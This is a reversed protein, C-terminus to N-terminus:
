DTGPVWGDAPAGAEVWRRVVDVLTADLRPKNFPMRKGFGPELDGELKHMLYSTTADGHTADLQTVRQWGATAADANTPTKGILNDYSAGRELLLEAQVTQSDHCGGLACSQDFIQTQIRAFTSTFFSRPDCGAPAPDCTLKLLDVDSRVRGAVPTSLAVLRISKEGKRCVGGKLPGRVPVHVATTASCRDLRTEPYEFVFGARTAIAQMEPDFSPDGNDLAHAITVAAVGNLTCRANATSNACIAIPFQCRGNVLGDADCPDGDACRVSRPTRATGVAPAPVDFVALCDNKASGGGGGVVVAAAPMVSLVSSWATVVVMAVAPSLRPRRARGPPTAHADVRKTM